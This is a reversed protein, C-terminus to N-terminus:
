LTEEWGVVPGPLRFRVQQPEEVFHKESVRLLLVLVLMSAGTIGSMHYVMCGRLRCYLYTM